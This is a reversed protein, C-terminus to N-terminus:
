DNRVHYMCSLYGTHGFGVYVVFMRYTWIQCEHFIDQIDLDSMCSLYETHGFGVNMVFNRYKDLDSLIRDKFM